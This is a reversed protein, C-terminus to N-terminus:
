WYSGVTTFYANNQKRNVEFYSPQFTANWSVNLDSGNARFTSGDRNKRLILERLSEVIKTWKSKFEMM